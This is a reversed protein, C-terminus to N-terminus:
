SINPISSNKISHIVGSFRSTGILRAVGVGPDIINEAAIVISSPAFTTPEPNVILCMCISHTHLRKITSCAKPLQTFKSYRAM